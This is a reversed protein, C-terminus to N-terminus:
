PTKRTSDTGALKRTWITFATLAASQQYQQQVLFQEIAGTADYVERRSAIIVDPPVLSRLTEPLPSALLLAEAHGTGGGATIPVQYYKASDGDANWWVTKGELLAQRAMGSASRYDDKEHRHAFRLSWTSALYLTFFAVAVIRGSPGSRWAGALGVGLLFFGLPAFSAFHRGLIRFHLFVALIVLLGAPIAIAVLAGTLKQTGLKRRLERFAYMGLGAFAVAMALLFVAYTKFAHMGDTRIELRGPGLGAFGLLEYGIFLPNKWDTGAIATAHTGLRMIWLYYCGLLGLLLIGTLWALWDTRLLKQIKQPPLLVGLLLLPVTALIMSLMSSGCLLVLATVFLWSQRRTSVLNTDPNQWWYYIVSYVILSTSLQMTYSRAENLYYWAFPSVAAALFVGMQLARRAAFSWCVAALGGAFWFINVARLAWESTGIVKGCVWIWFVYFPMALDSCRDATLHQWWDPLTPQQAIIATCAEDIWFSHATIAVLFTLLTLGAFFWSRNGRRFRRRHSAPSAIM